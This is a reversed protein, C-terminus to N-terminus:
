ASVTGPVPDVTTQLPGDGRVDTVTVDAIHLKALAERVEDVQNSRVVTKILKM